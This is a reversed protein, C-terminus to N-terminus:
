AAGGSLNIMSRRSPSCFPWASLSRAWGMITSARALDRLTPHEADTAIEGIVLRQPAVGIALKDRDMFYGGLLAIVNKAVTEVSPDSEPYIAHRHLGISLEVFLESLDRPLTQVPEEASGREYVQGNTSGPM